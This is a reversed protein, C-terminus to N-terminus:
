LQWKRPDAIEESVISINKEWESNLKYNSDLIAKLQTVSEVGIVIKSAWSISKAYAVCLDIRSVGEKKSYL